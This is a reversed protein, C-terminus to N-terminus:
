RYFYLKGRLYRDVFAALLTASFGLAGYILASVVEARFISVLFSFAFIFSAVVLLRFIPTGWKRLKLRIRLDTREKTYDSFSPWALGSHSVEFNADTSIPFLQYFAGRRRHTYYLQGGPRFQSLREFKFKRM